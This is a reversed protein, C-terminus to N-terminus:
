RGSSAGGETLTAGAVGRPVVFGDADIDFGEDLLMAAPQDSASRALPMATPQDSASRALPMAAPRDSTPRPITAAIVLTGAERGDLSLGEPDALGLDRRMSARPWIVAGNVTRGMTGAKHTVEHSACRAPPTNMSVLSHGDPAYAVVPRVGCAAHFEEAAQEAAALDAVSAIPMVVGEVALPGPSGSRMLSAVAAVQAPRGVWLTIREEVLRRLLESAEAHGDVVVGHIALRKGAGEGFFGSLPDGFALSSLLRDSRRVLLCGDVAEAVAAAAVSDGGNAVPEARIAAAFRRRVSSATLEQLALRAVDPHAGVPLPPGFSLTLPRRFCRLGGGFFLRPRKTFYKGESFTLLSGWLGDLHLPVMPAEVRELLWELGRKFGLIQGTRSIGGECFIGIVDGDALGKQIEKLAMGISKPKPDFLIFRWQDALMRLFRGQINPGYVVMRIPRPSALVVIFGDLWSLHNAVVVAPGKAPVFEEGRIRFRYIAHVISSVLIRLSARPAAYIAAAAALLALLAFGGFVAKASLVLRAAGYVLTAVFMGSFVLLNLAALLTGRRHPPSREQFYAELPVDFAGAGVGLLALSAFAHWWGYPIARGDAFAASPGGALLLSAVAMVVGGAPVLGLDIGRSSIKGALVSGFGIGGVLAVLFPVVQWQTTAGAEAVFQDVNLQAVAAIAWFFVIGAASAALERSAFLEGLDRITTSIMRGSLVMGGSLVTDAAAAPRPTLRMAAAWGTIAVGVLMAIAPFGELWGASRMCAGCAGAGAVPSVDALWNGAAMGVLTAALGVMAFWGNAAALRRAPVIEPISGLLSPTMLAAQCGIVVVCGLLLWLGAPLGAASPGSRVGWAVVLGAALAIAIEAAKCAVIVSRKPHRDALHGALWALVIFPLVFGATGITLVLPHQVAECARKGLGIALWRLANDNAVTLGRVALLPAFGAIRGLQGGDARDDTPDSSHPM